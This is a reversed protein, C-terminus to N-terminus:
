NSQYLHHYLGDRHMLEAHTGTEVIRGDELVLIRDAKEITSLRHAIIFTTRDEMLQELAAQILKESETDLASTAEDLILICPNKLFARAITIRQRQGGSLLIGGEGVEYDFGKPLSVIFDYANAAKAAAIVEEDSADPKGYRINDWITGSFLVPEQLVMGIHQRLSKLSIQRVDTGDIRVVGDDVDYFRPILSIVTSKGSGSPGVLAVKQGHEVMFSVHDLVRDPMDAQQYTFCVRDFEVRGQVGNLVVAGPHDRIEPKMDMIDFVRELAAMSNSFVINLESFRQFPLYLPSLYMSIAILKGVTLSGDIVRYGGYLTVILPAIQVIVGTIIMNVSQLKVRQMTTKLLHESERTFAQEEQKEQAFAHVVRSGAVKEQINGSLDAIEQQVQLSSERISRNLRRFFFVYIPFTLLAVLTLELDIRFMFYLILLLSTMDMWVNTLAAGVLNQALEIDSILRSVIGGSRNHDFFSASMRMIHYYLECRLDFVSKHGALGAYYHRVYTWPTWFFVFLAIMGGLYLFLEHKKQGVTLTENLYVNDILHRTVEPILLPVGFKVIGGVVAALLYYKYPGVYRLFRVFDNRRQPLIETTSANEVM